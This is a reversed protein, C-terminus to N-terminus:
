SINDRDFSLLFNITVRDSYFETDLISILHIYKIQKLRLEQYQIWHYAIICKENLDQERLRFLELRLYYLEVCQKSGILFTTVGSLIQHFLVNRVYHKFISPDYLSSRQRQNFLTHYMVSWFWNKKRINRNQGFDFCAKKYMFFYFIVFQSKIM